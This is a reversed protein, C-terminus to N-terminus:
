LAPDMEVHGECVYCERNGLLSRLISYGSIKLALIKMMKIDYGNGSILLRSILSPVAIAVSVWKETGV